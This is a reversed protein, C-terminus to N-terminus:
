QPLGQMKVSATSHFVVNEVSEIKEIMAGWAVGAMDISGGFQNIGIVVAIIIVASVSLKTIKSKMIIRWTNQKVFEQRKNLTRRYALLADEVVLKDKVADSKLCARESTYFRKLFKEIKEPAKM